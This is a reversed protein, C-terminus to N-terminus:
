EMTGQAELSSIQRSVDRVKHEEDRPRTPLLGYPNGLRRLKFLLKIERNVILPRMKIADLRLVSLCFWEM